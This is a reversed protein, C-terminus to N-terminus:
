IKSEECNDDVVAKKVQTQLTDKNLSKQNKVPDLERQRSKQQSTVINGVDEYKCEPTLPEGEPGIEENMKLCDVSGLDKAYASDDSDGHNM